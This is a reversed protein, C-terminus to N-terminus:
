AYGERVSAHRYGKDGRFRVEVSAGSLPMTYCSRYLTASGGFRTHAVTTVFNMLIGNRNEMLAHGMSM